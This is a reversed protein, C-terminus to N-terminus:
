FNSEFFFIELFSKTYSDEFEKIKLYKPEFHNKKLVGIINISILLLIIILINFFKFKSFYVNNMKIM